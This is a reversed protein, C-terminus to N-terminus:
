PVEESTKPLTGLSNRRISIAEKAVEGDEEFVWPEIASLKLLSSLDLHPYVWSIIFCEESAVWARGEAGISHVFHPDIIQFQYVKRSTQQNQHARQLLRNRALNQRQICRHFRLLRQQTIPHTPLCRSSAAVFPTYLVNFYNGLHSAKVKDDM